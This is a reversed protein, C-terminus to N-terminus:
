AQSLYALNHPGWFLSVFVVLLEMFFSPMSRSVQFCMTASWQAQCLWLDTYTYCIHLLCSFLVSCLSTDYTLCFGHRWRVILWYEGIKVTQLLHKWGWIWWNLWRQFCETVCSMITRKPLSPCVIPHKVIVFPWTYMKMLSIQPQCKKSSCM